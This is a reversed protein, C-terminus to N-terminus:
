DLQFPSHILTLAIFYTSVSAIPLFYGLKSYAHADYCQPDQLVKIFCLGAM